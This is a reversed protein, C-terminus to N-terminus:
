LAVMDALTLVKSLWCGSCSSDSSTNPIFGDGLFFISGLSVKKAMHVSAQLDLKLAREEPLNKDSRKCSSLRFLQKLTM